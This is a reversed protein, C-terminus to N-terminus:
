STFFHSLAICSCLAAVKKKGGGGGSWISVLILSGLFPILALVTTRWSVRAVAVAMPYSFMFLAAGSYKGLSDKLFRGLLIYILFSAAILMILNTVHWGTQNEVSWIKNDLAWSLIMLPRYGGGYQSSFAAPVERFSHTCDLFDDTLFGTRLTPIYLMAALLLIAGAPLFKKM